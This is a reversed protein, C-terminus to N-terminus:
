IQLGEQVLVDDTVDVWTLGVIGDRWTHGFAIEIRTHRIAGHAVRGRLRGLKGSATGHPTLYGTALATISGLAASARGDQGLTVHALLAGLDTAAAGITSRIGSAHANAAGLSSRASGIRYDNGTAQANLAGLSALATGGVMPAGEATANLGGLPSGAAGRLLRHGHASAAIGGLDSLSDGSTLRVGVSSAAVPGLDVHASGPATRLGASTATLSGLDALAEGGIIDAGVEHEIVLRPRRDATSNDSSAFSIAELGNPSTNTRVRSSSLMVYLWGDDDRAAEIADVLASGNNTFDRSTSSSSSSALTALLPLSSLDAGAVWDGTGVSAGWDHERVEVDFSVSSGTDQYMRLTAATVVDGAPLSGVDFRLFVETIGYVFNFLNRHQGVGVFSGAVLQDLTTRSDDAGLNSGSRATSYTANSSSVTGDSTHGVVESTTM